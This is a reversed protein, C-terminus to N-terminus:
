AGTVTLALSAGICPRQTSIDIIDGYVYVEISKQIFLLVSMTQDADVYAVDVVVNPVDVGTASVTIRCSCNVSHTLPRHALLTSNILLVPAGTVAGTIGNCSYEEQSTKRYGVLSLFMSDVFTLSSISTSSNMRLEYFGLLCRSNSEM